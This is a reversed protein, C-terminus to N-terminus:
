LDGARLIRPDVRKKKRGDQATPNHLTAHLILSDHPFPRACNPPHVGSFSWETVPIDTAVFRSFNFGFVVGFKLMLLRLQVNFTSCWLM